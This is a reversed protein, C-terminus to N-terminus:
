PVPDTELPRLQEEKAPSAKETISKIIKIASLIEVKIFCTDLMVFGKKPDLLEALLMARCGYTGCEGEGDYNRTQARDQQDIIAFNCHTYWSGAAEECSLFIVLHTGNLTIRGKNSTYTVHTGKPDISLQWKLGFATFVDSYHRDSKLSSFNEIKWIYKSSPFSSTM